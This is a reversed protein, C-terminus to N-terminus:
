LCIKLEHYRCENKLELDQTSTLHFVDFMLLWSIGRLSRVFFSFFEEADVHFLYLFELQVHHGFEQLNM